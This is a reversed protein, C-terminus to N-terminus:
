SWRLHIQTHWERIYTYMKDSGRAHVRKRVRRDACQQVTNLVKPNATLHTHALSLSLSIAKKHTTHATPNQSGGFIGHMGHVTCPMAAYVFSQHQPQITDTPKTAITVPTCVTHIHTHPHFHHTSM